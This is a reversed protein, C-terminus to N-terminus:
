CSPIQRCPTSLDRGSPCFGPLVNLRVRNRTYVPQFNTEDEIHDINNDSLYRLIKDRTCLLLAKYIVRVPTHRM